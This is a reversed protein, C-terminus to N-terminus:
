FSFHNNEKLYPLGFKHAITLTKNHYLFLPTLILYYGGLAVSVHWIAHGFLFRVFYYHQCLKETFIWFIGALTILGIGKWNYEVLINPLTLKKRNVHIFIVFLLLTGLFVGFLADFLQEYHLGTITLLFVIYLTKFFRLSEYFSSSMKFKKFFKIGVNYCNIVLMIMSFRDMLGWGIQNTFHYLSSTIGNVILSSYILNIDHCIPNMKIGFLGIFVLFLSTISNIYEPPGGYLEVECFPHDLAFFDIYFNSM